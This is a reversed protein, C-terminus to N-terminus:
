SASDSGLASSNPPALVISSDVSALGSSSGAPEAAVDADRRFSDRYYGIADELAQFAAESSRASIPHGFIDGVPHLITVRSTPPAYEVM